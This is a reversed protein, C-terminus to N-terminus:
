FSMNPNRTNLTKLIHKHNTRHTALVLTHVQLVPLKVKGSTQPQIQANSILLREHSCWFVKDDRM